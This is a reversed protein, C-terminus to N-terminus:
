HSLHARHVRWVFSGAGGELERGPETWACLGGVRALSQARSVREMGPGALGREMEVKDYHMNSFCSRLLRQKTLLSHRHNFTFCLAMPVVALVRAHARAPTPVLGASLTQVRPGPHLRLARRGSRAASGPPTQHLLHGTRLQKQPRQRRSKRADSHETHNQTHVHIHTNVTSTSLSVYLLSWM